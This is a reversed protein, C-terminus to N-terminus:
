ERLMERQREINRIKRKGFRNGFGLYIDRKVCLWMWMKIEGVYKLIGPNAKLIVM